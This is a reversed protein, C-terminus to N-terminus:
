WPFCILEYNHLWLCLAHNVVFTFTPYYGILGGSQNYNRAIRMKKISGRQIFPQAFRLFSFNRSTANSLLSHDAPKPSLHPTQSIPEPLFLLSDMAKRLAVSSATFLSWPGSTTESHTTSKVIPNLTVQEGNMSSIASANGAFANARSTQAKLYYYIFCFFLNCLVRWM